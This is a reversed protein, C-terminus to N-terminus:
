IIFIFYIFLLRLFCSLFFSFHSWQGSDLAYIGEYNCQKLMTELQHLIEQNGDVVLVRMGSPFERSTNGSNKLASKM